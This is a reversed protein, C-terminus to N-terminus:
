HYGIGMVYDRLLSGDQEVEALLVQLADRVNLVGAPRADKDIIPVHVFGREHMISLIEQVSDGPRCFTVDRKMVSEATLTNLNARGRAVQRVVDTKTIVGVMGGDANCVVLLSIHTNSLLKAQDPLFVDTQITVLRQLAIPLIREVRM